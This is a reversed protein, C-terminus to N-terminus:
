ELAELLSDPFSRIQQLEQRRKKRKGNRLFRCNSNNKSNYNNKSKYNSKSNYNSNIKALVVLFRTM